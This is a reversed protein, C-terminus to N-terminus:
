KATLAASFSVNTDNTFEHFGSVGGDERGNTSVSVIFVCTDEVEVWAIGIDKSKSVSVIHELCNLQSLM